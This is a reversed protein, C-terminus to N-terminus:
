RYLGKIAGWSIHETRVHGADYRASTTYIFDGSSSANNNAANGAVYFAVPGHPASPSVWKTTWGPSVNFTGANTGGSTHEVYQRLTVGDVVAQTRSPDTVLFLGIAQNGDDLATIEFGWRQQGAQAVVIALTLTDGPNYSAPGTVTVSGSGTNLNGHCEACTTEGPAGTRAAPPGTSYAWAAVSICVAGAFLITRLNHKM